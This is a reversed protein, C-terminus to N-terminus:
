QRRRIVAVADLLLRGYVLAALALSGLWIWHLLRVQSAHAAALTDYDILRRGARELQLVEYRPMLPEVSAERAQEITHDAYDAPAYDGDLAALPEPPAVRAWVTVADGARLSGLVGEYAPSQDDLRNGLNVVFVTPLGELRMEIYHHAPRGHKLRERWGAVRAHVPTLETLPPFPPQSHQFWYLLGLLPAM